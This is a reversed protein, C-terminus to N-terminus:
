FLFVKVIMSLEVPAPRTGPELPNADSPMDSARILYSANTAGVTYWALDESPAALYGGKKLCIERCTAIVKQPPPM